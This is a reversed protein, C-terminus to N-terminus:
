VPANIAPLTQNHPKVEWYNLNTGLFMLTASRIPGHGAPEAAKRIVYTGAVKDRLSQRREDGALWILDYPLTFPSVLCIVLRAAMRLTSPREGRLTVIRTGILMFGVTGIMSAELVTLYGTAALCWILFLPKLGVGVDAEYAAEHIIIAPFAVPGLVVVADILLIALRQGFGAYDRPRYYVGIQPSPAM